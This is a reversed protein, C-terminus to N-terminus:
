FPIDCDLDEEVEPEKVYGNAKEKQHETPEEKAEEIVTAKKVKIEKYEINEGKSVFSKIKLEGDINFSKDLNNEILQVDDGFCVFKRSRGKFTGDEQRERWYLRGQAYEKGDKSVKKKFDFQDSPKNTSDDWIKAIRFKKNEM